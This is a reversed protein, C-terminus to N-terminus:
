QCSRPHGPAASGTLPLPRCLNPLPSLLHEAQARTAFVVQLQGDTIPSQIAPHTILRGDAIVALQDRPNKLGSIQRGSVFDVVMLGVNPHGNGDPQGGTIAQTPGAVALSAALVGAVMLISRRLVGAKQRKM